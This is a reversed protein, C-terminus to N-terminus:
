QDILYKYLAIISGAIRSSYKDILNANHLRNIIEKRIRDYVYSEKTPTHNYIYKKDSVNYIFKGDYITSQRVYGNYNIVRHGKTDITIPNTDIDSESIGMKILKEKETRVKRHHNKNDKFNYKDFSKIYPIWFKIDLYGVVIYAQELTKINDTLRCKLDEYFDDELYYEKNVRLRDNNAEVLEKYEKGLYDDIFGSITREIALKSSIDKNVEEITELANDIGVLKSKNSIEAIKDVFTIDHNDKYLMNSYRILNFHKIFAIDYVSLTNKQSWNYNLNERLYAIYNNQVEQDQLIEKIQKKKM